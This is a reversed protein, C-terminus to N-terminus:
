IMLDKIMKRILLRGTTPKLIPWFILFAGSKGLKKELMKLM